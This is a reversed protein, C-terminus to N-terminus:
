ESHDFWVVRRVAEDREERRVGERQEDCRV